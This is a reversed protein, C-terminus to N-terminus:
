KMYTNSSTFCVAGDFCSLTRMSYRVQEIYCKGGDIGVCMYSHARRRFLVCQIGTKGTNTPSNSTVLFVLVTNLFNEKASTCGIPM